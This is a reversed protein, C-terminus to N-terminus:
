STNYRCKRCYGTIMLTVDGVKFGCEDLQDKLMHSVDLPLEFVDGCKVCVLHAHHVSKPDGERAACLEYRKCGDGMDVTRVVGAKLFLDLTRYVTAMGALDDKKKLENYIDYARMHRGRNSALISMIQERRRTTRYPVPCDERELAPRETVSHWGAM